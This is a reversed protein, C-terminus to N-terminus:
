AKLQKRTRAFNKRWARVEARGLLQVALRKALGVGGV